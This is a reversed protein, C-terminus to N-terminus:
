AYNWPQRNPAPEVAPTTPLQLAGYAHAYTVDVGNRFKWSLALRCVFYLGLCLFYNGAASGPLSVGALALIQDAYCVAGIVLELLYYWWFSLDLRIVAGCNGRMMQRSRRLAALAGKEPADMLALEAMRYRYFIPAAMILFVVGSIVQIPLAAAEMATEMAADMQAANKLFSTDSSLFPTMAEVLPRSWPTLFLLFSSIYSAAVGIALYIASRLLLMRLVPGFRRFGQLLVNPDRYEGRSLQLAAYVYGIEWFPLVLIQSIRLISQVTELMARTGLGDLGGTGGISQALWYDLTSLLTTLLLAAGTHILVLKGPDGRSGALSEAAAQKLGRRDLIDM